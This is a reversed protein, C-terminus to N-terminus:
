RCIRENEHAAKRPIPNGGNRSSAIFPRSRPRKPVLVRTTARRRTACRSCSAFLLGRAPRRTSSSPAGHARAIGLAAALGLGRGQFRTSFFPEFIRRKTEADIGEGNDAVELFAYKTEALDEGLYANALYSSNADVTGTRVTITGASEGIAEVANEVLSRLLQGIQARDACILPTDDALESKIEIEPKVEFREEDIEALVIDNLATRKVLSRGGGSYALMQAALAAASEIANIVRELLEVAESEPAVIEKAMSANGLMSQLLNNFDHAVGGALVALSELKDAEQLRRRFHEREDERRKRDGIDRVAVVRAPKGHMTITRGSAECSFRSGDKRIGMYEYPESAGRAIMSLVHQRSEPAAFDGIHMGIAETIEYGFLTAFTENLEVVHGNEHVAIGEFAADSLLRFRQESERLDGELQAQESVDRFSMSTRKEDNEDQFIVSVVEAVFTSGDGRLLRIRARSRGTKQREEIALAVNPDTMDVVGERGLACIEKESRGLMECAAPNASLIRGDPATLMVGDLTCELMALASQASEFRSGDHTKVTKDDASSALYQHGKEEHWALNVSRHRSFLPLLNSEKGDAYSM